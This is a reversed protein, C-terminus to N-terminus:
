PSRGNELRARIDIVMPALRKVRYRKWGRDDIDVRKYILGRVLEEGGEAEVPNIIESLAFLDAVTEGEPLAGQFHLQAPEDADGALVHGAEHLLIYTKGSHSLRSSLTLRRSGAIGPALISPVSLDAQNVKVGHAELLENAKRRSDSNHGEAYDAVVSRAKEILRLVRTYVSTKRTM